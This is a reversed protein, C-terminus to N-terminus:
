TINMETLVTNDAHKLKHGTGAWIEKLAVDCGLDRLCAKAEDLGHNQLAENAITELGLQLFKPRLESARVVCNRAAMLGLFIRRFERFKRTFTSLGFFYSKGARTASKNKAHCNLANVIAEAANQDNVLTRACEPNRLTLSTICRLAALATNVKNQNLIMYNMIVM